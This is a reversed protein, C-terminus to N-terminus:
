GNHLILGQEKRLRELLSNVARQISDPLTKISSDYQLKRCYDLVCEVARVVYKQGKYVTIIKVRRIEERETSTMYVIVPDAHGDGDMDSFSCYLTSFWINNEPSDTSSVNELLDNIEWKKLYGGHDQLLCIAKIRSNLTDKGKVTAQNECLLVNWYGGKDGYAYARYVPMKTYLNTATDGFGELVEAKSLIRVTTDIGGRHNVLNIQASLQHIFSVFTVCAAIFYNKKIIM